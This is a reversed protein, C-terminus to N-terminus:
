CLVAPHQCAVDELASRSSEPDPPDTGPEPSGAAPSDHTPSLRVTPPLGQPAKCLWPSREGGGPPRKKPVRECRSVLTTGAVSRAPGCRWGLSLGGVCGLDGAGHQLAILPPRGCHALCILEGYAHRHTYTPRCVAAAATTSGAPAGARVHVGGTLMRMFKGNTNTGM